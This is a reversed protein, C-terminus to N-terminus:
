SLSTQLLAQHVTLPMFTLCVSCTASNMASHASVQACAGQRARFRTPVHMIAWRCETLCWNSAETLGSIPPMRGITEAPAGSNQGYGAYFVFVNDVVGDGDEDYQSFDVDGDALSCADSVMEYPNVDHLSASERGYYAMSQPLTYPGFVDFEPTFLGRSNEVFYDRASGTAGNYDYGERTMLDTFASLANPTIFKQDPFEVLLM